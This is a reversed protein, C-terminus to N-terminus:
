LRSRAEDFLLSMMAAALPMSGVAVLAALGALAAGFGAALGILAVAITPLGAVAWVTILMPGGARVLGASVTVADRPKQVGAALAVGFYSRPYAYLLSGILLALSVAAIPWFGLAAGFLRMALVAVFLATSLPLWPMLHSALRVMVAHSAAAADPQLNDAARAFAEASIAFTLVATLIVAPAIMAEAVPNGILRLVTAAFCAAVGGVFGTIGYESADQILAGVAGEFIEAPTSRPRAESRYTRV